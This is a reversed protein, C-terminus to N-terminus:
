YIDAIKTIRIPCVKSFSGYGKIMIWGNTVPVTVVDGAERVTADRASAFIYGLYQYQAAVGTESPYRHTAGNAVSGVKSYLELKQDSCEADNKAFNLVAGKASTDTNVRIHSVNGVLLLATDYVTGAGTFDFGTKKWTAVGNADSVLTKGVGEQGDVIQLKGKVGGSIPINRTDTEGISVAVEGSVVPAFISKGWALFGNAFAGTNVTLRGEKEQASAGVNIPAATNAKQNQQAPTPESYTQASLYSVGGVVLLAVIVPKLNKIFTQM